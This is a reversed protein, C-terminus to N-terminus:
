ASNQFKNFKPLLINNNENMQIYNLNNNKKEPKGSDLDSYEPVYGFNLKPINKGWKTEMINNMKIKDPFYVTMDSKESESSINDRISNIILNNDISDINEIKNKNKNKNENYEIEDQHNKIELPSQTSKMEYSAVKNVENLISNIDIGKEKILYLVQMLKLEKQEMLKINKESEVIKNKLLFFNNKMIDYEKKLNNYKQSINSYMKQNNENDKKIKNIKIEQNKIIQNKKNIEKKYIEIEKKLGKIKELIDASRKPTSDSLKNNNTNLNIIQKNNRNIRAYNKINKVSLNNSLGITSFMKKNNHNMSYKDRSNNIVLQQYHPFNIFGVNSKSKTLIKFSNSNHLIANINSNTNTKKMKIKSNINNQNKSFKINRNNIKLNSSNFISIYKKSNNGHLNGETLSSEVYNNHIASNSNNRKKIYKTPKIVNYLKTNKFVKKDYLYPNHNQNHNHNNANTRSNIQNFYNNNSLKITKTFDTSINNFLSIKKNSKNHNNNEKLYNYDFYM